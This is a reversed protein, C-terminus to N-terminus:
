PVNLTQSRRTEPVQDYFNKGSTTASSFALLHRRQVYVRDNPAQIRLRKFFAESIEKKFNFERFSASWRTAFTTPFLNRVWVGLSDLAVAM